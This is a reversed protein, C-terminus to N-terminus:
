SQDDRDLLCDQLLAPAKRTRQPYRSPVARSNVKPECVSDDSTPQGVDSQPERANWSKLSDEPTHTRAEAESADTDMDMGNAGNETDEAESEINKEAVGSSTRTDLEAAEPDRSTSNLFQEVWRPPADLDKVSLEM